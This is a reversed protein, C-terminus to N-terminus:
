DFLKNELIQYVPAGECQAPMELGMLLAATPAVDIHHVYRDTVFNKKIGPGAAVFISSVSTDLIGNTTSLSDGHQGTHGETLYYIIDGAGEGGVGLNIADKNRLVISFIRHGTEKDTLQYMATMIKEEMEFKDKPDVIGNPERGKLNIFISNSRQPYAVTKSWDIEHTDNGNEDKFLTIFGMQKFYFANIPTAGAFFNHRGHESVTQGHDSVLIITWGEDMLEMMDGIYNDTQVYVDRFLERYTEASIYETGSRLNDLILHGQLDVNHFHSFIMKYGRERALFKLSKSQWEGQAQWTRGVCGSLLCVENGAATSTPQPYGVNEIIDKLLAKPHWLTDNSFDMAASVWLRVKTGDPAIELLRANRNAPIKEDKRYAEDIFDSVYEDEHIVVIPEASKKSKYIAIHDYAGQENQLILIPRRLMGKANLLTCEKAGEPANEWGTADKIPSYVIDFPTNSFSHTVEEEFVAVGAVEPMHIKEFISADEATNKEELEMGPMFCEVKGDSAVKTAYKTEPTNVSAVMVKESDVEALGLNPGAPQTGDVVSLNPNESSPPWSGGPWHWVLTKIGSEAAVNWLQEAKCETSAFNYFMKEPYAPDHRYYEDIGHVAPCAGTALTTWMPPTVTPHGGIMHLDERAAGMEVLRKLNPMYGEDMYKKSLRPDMGDVGLILLKETSKKM